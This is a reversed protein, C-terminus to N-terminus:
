PAIVTEESALFLAISDMDVFNPADAGQDERMQRSVIADQASELDPWTIETVGGYALGSLAETTSIPHIQHYSLANETLAAIPGHIHWWHDRFAKLTLDARRRFPYVGKIRTAGLYGPVQMVVRELGAFVAKVEASEAKLAGYGERCASFAAEMDEFWLEACGSFAPDDQDPLARTQMLGKLAPYTARAIEAAAAGQYRFPDAGPQFLICAKYM